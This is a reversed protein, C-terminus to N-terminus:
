VTLPEVAQMLHLSAHQLGAPRKEDLAFHRRLFLHFMLFHHAAQGLQPPLQIQQQRCTSPRLLVYLLFRAPAPGGPRGWWYGRFEDAKVPQHRRQRHPHSTRWELVPGTPDQAALTAPVCRVAIAMIGNSRMSGHDLAGREPEQHAIAALVGERSTM